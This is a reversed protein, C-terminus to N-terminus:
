EEIKIIKLNYQQALMRAEDENVRIANKMYYTFSPKSHIEDIGKFYLEKTLTDILIYM